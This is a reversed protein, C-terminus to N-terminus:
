NQPLAPTVGVLVHELAGHAYPFASTSINLRGFLENRVGHLLAGFENTDFPTDGPGPVASVHSIVVSNSFSLRLIRFVLLGGATSAEVPPDRDYSGSGERKERIWLWQIPSDKAGPRHSDKLMEKKLEVFKSMGM